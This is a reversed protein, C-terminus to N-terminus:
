PVALPPVPTGGSLGFVADAPRYLLLAAGWGVALFLDSWPFGGGLLSTVAGLALAAAGVGASVRVGIRPHRLREIALGGAWGYATWVLAFRLTVFVVAGVVLFRGSILVGLLALLVGVAAGAAAGRRAARVPQHHAARVWSWTIAGAAVLSTLALFSYFGSGPGEGASFGPSLLEQGLLILVVAGPALHPNARLFAGMRRLARDLRRDFAGAQVPRGSSARRARAAARWRPVRTQFGELVVFLVLSVVLPIITNWHGTKLDYRVGAILAPLAAGAVAGAGAAEAVHWIRQQEPTLLNRSQEQAM